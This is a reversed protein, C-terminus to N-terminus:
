VHLAATYILVYHEGTYFESTFWSRLFLGLISIGM